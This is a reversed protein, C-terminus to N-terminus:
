FLQIVNAHILPFHVLTSFNGIINYNALTQSHLITHRHNVIPPYSHGVSLQTVQISLAHVGGELEKKLVENVM